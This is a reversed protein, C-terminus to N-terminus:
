ISVTKGTFRSVDVSKAMWNNSEYNNSCLILTWLAEQATGNSIILEAKDGSCTSDESDWRYFFNLASAGLPLTVTQSIASTENLARTKDSLDAVYQGSHPM